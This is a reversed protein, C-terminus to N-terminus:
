GGVARELQVRAIALEYRARVLNLRAQTLASQSDLLDTTTASGAQLAVQTVRYAEEASAIATRAVSVASAAAQVQALRISVEAGVRRRVDEQEAEAADAREAAARRDYFSAGWEFVNWSAKLGVYTSDEPALSEGQIHVYGAELDVEPLLSLSRASARERASQATLQASALEPRRTVAQDIAAGLEPAREAAEEMVQPEAFDVTADSQDRGLMALLSARADDEQVRAQIEEQRANALAVEVRLVDATTAVGTRLKVQMIRQEEALQEQSAVATGALARAEFLRLLRTKVQERVDAEAARVDVEAANAASSLAAHDQSLRALGLLPQELGAAFTNTNLDRAQLRPPPQVGINFTAVWPQRYRDQEDSVQVGPLMRGRLSRAVDTAADARARAAAIQSSKALAEAVAEEESLPKAAEALALAPWVALAIRLAHVNRM